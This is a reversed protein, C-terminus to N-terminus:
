SLLEGGDVNLAQGNIGCAEPSALFAALAAVEEPEILRGQPNM